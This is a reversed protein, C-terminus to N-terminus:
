VPREVLGNSWEYKRCLAGRKCWHFHDDMYVPPTDPGADGARRAIKCFIKIATIEHALYSDGRVADVRCYVQALM